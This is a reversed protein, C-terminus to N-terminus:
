IEKEAFTFISALKIKSYGNSKIKSANIMAKALIPTPLPKQSKFLGIKNIFKIIKAGMIEVPINSYKRDLMGPQFITLKQFNLAKVKQELEGKMKSYFITSNADAGASSVLIFDAVNNEKAAKAFHYQYDVDIKYQAEKSGAAKLTSGLCAFAVDGKILNKWKDPQDFDIIHVSVKPHVKSIHKRVFLHIEKFKEDSALQTVLEKGTAGTGGIILAKMKQLDLLQSNVIKTKNNKSINFSVIM